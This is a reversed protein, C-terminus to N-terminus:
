AMEIADLHGTQGSNPVAAPVARKCGATGAVLYTTRHGFPPSSTAGAAMGLQARTFGFRPMLTLERRPHAGCGTCTLITGPRLPTLHIETLHIEIITSAEGARNHRNAPVM